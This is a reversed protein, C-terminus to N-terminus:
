FDRGKAPIKKAYKGRLFVGAGFSRHLTLFVSAYCGLQLGSDAPM